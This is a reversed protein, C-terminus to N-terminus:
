ANETANSLLRKLLFEVADELRQGELERHPGPYAVLRKDQSGVADFLAATGERDFFEDNWQQTFWVPCAIERAHSALHESAAYTTSWLGIAAARIRPERALLPIGYATGMSVGIYGVPVNRFDDQGLVRDLAARFDEAIETRGVGARWAERFSTRATGSSLDRDVRREGHVPGDIALVACGKRIFASAIALIAESQKHGSGGHLALVLARSAGVPRWIQAPVIAGNREVELTALSVADHPADFKEPIVLHGSMRTELYSRVAVGNVTSKQQKSPM